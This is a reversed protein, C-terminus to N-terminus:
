WHVRHWEHAWCHVLCHPVKHWGWQTLVTTREIVGPGDFAVCRLSDERTWTCLMVTCATWCSRVVALVGPSCRMGCCWSTAGGIVAWPTVRLFSCLERHASWVQQFVFRRFSQGHIVAWSHCGLFSLGCSASSCCPPQICCWREHFQSM